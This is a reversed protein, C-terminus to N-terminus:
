SEVWMKKTGKDVSAWHGHVEEKIKHMSFIISPILPRGSTKIAEIGLGEGTKEVAMMVNIIDGAKFPMMTQNVIVDKNENTRLVCRVNSNAIDTGNKRLWFDVSSAGDGSSRGVQPAAILVYTGSELICIDSPHENSHEIGSIADNQDMFIPVPDTTKPRQDITSIIQAFEVTM